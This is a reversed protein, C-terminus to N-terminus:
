APPSGAAKKGAGRAPAPPKEAGLGVALLVISSGFHLVNVAGNVALINSETGIVFLGALGLALLVAGFAANVAPTLRTGALGSALLVGGIALHVLNQLVNVEFVGVLYGGTTSVIGIGATATFGLLGVALYIGGVIAAVLRNPSHSV